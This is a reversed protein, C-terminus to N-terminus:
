VYDEFNKKNKGGLLHALKWGHFPLNHQKNQTLCTCRTLLLSCYLVARVGRTLARLCSRSGSGSRLGAPGQERSSHVAPASV